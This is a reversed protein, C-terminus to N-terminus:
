NNSTPREAWAAEPTEAATLQVAYAKFSLTPQVAGEAQLTEMMAKTVTDKVTVQNGTLVPINQDIVADKIYYVNAVGPVQAWPTAVSYTIYDTLKPSASETIEVFLWCKESGAEVKVFPDKAITAGPLMKYTAGTSEDLIIDINSPTFTNTVTGSQATLWALTGGISLGAVLVLCLAFALIKKMNM